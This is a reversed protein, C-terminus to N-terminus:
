RARSPCPYGAPSRCGAYPCGCRDSPDRAPCLARAAQVPAEACPGRPACGVPSSRVARCRARSRLNSPHHRDEARPRLARPIVVQYAPERISLGSSHRSCPRRAGSSPPDASLLCDHTGRCKKNEQTQRDAADAILNVRLGGAGSRSGLLVGPIHPRLFAEHRTRHFHRGAKTGSLIPRAVCLGRPTDLAQEDVRVEIEDLPGLVFEPERPILKGRALIMEVGQIERELRYERSRPFLRIRPGACPGLRFALVPIDLEGLGQQAIALRPLRASRPVAIGHRGFSPVYVSPLYPLGVLNQIGGRVPQLPHPGPVDQFQLDGVLELLELVRACAQELCCAVGPRVVRRDVCGRHHEGKGFPTARVLLHLLNRKKGHLFGLISQARGQRRDHILLHEAVLAIAYKRICRDVPTEHLPAEAIDLRPASRVACRPFDIRVEGALHAIALFRAPEKFEAILQPTRVTRLRRIRTALKRKRGGLRNRPVNFPSPVHALTIAVSIRPGRLVRM